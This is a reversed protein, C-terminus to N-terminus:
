AFRPRRQQEAARHLRSPLESGPAAVRRREGRCQREIRASRHPRTHRHRKLTTVLKRDIAMTSWQYSVPRALSSEPHRGLLWLLAPPRAQPATAARAAARRWRRAARPLAAPAAASCPRALSRTARDGPSGPAARAPAYASAAPAHPEPRPARCAASHAARRSPLVPVLHCRLPLARPRPWATVGAQPVCGRTGRRPTCVRRQAHRGCDCRIRCM